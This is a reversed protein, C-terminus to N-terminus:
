CHRCCCFGRVTKLLQMAIDHQDVMGKRTRSKTLVYGKHMVDHSNPISLTVWGNARAYHLVHALIASRVRCRVCTICRPLGFM